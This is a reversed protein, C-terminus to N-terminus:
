GWWGISTVALILVLVGNVIGLFGFIIAAILYRKQKLFRYKALFDGFDIACYLAAVAAAAFWQEAIISVIFLPFGVAEAYYKGLKAGKNVAYETGEDQKLQRSMELIEEKRNNDNETSNNM